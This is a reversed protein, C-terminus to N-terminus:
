SICVSNATPQLFEQVLGESYAPLHFVAASAAPPPVTYYAPLCLYYTMVEAQWDDVLVLYTDFM